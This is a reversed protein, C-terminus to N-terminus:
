EAALEGRLRRLLKQQKSRTRGGVIKAKSPPMTLAATAIGKTALLEEPRNRISRKINSYGQFFRFSLVQAEDNQLSMNDQM